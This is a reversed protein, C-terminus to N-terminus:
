HKELFESLSQPSSQNIWRQLKTANGFKISWIAYEIVRWLIIKMGRYADLDTKRREEGVTNM